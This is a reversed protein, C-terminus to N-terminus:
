KIWIILILFFFFYFQYSVYKVFITLAKYIKTLVKILNEAHVGLLAARTLESTIDVYCCLRNCLALEFEQRSDDDDSSM